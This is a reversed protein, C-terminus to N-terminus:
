ELFQRLLEEELARQRAREREVAEAGHPWLWTDGGGGETRGMEVAVKAGDEKGVVTESALAYIRRV